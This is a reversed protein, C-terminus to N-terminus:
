IFNVHPPPNKFKWLFQSVYYQRCNSECDRNVNLGQVKRQVDWYRESKVLERFRTQNVNGMCFEDRRINFFHGCPFVGGDGSVAIIFQTGYCVNFDKLGRNNLKSWKVSVLYGNRSHSEAERFVPELELYKDVPSDLTGEYTDSCAKVVLYDVGLDSGLKALPVIDDVNDDVVVMQLGITTNLKASRKVEVCASINELVQDFKRVRHIRFFSDPAAASINFRIWTLASMMDNLRERDIILGNTALSVDLGIRRACELGDYLAPNLTNEGEGIFAASRVGAAKADTLLNVLTESSMDQRKNVGTRGQLVGYCYTCAMNCGTTIGLDINLPAIRKGDAWENVRNLHWLLKHSDMMYKDNQM